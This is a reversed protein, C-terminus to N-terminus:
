DSAPYIKSCFNSNASYLKERNGDTGNQLGIKGYGDTTTRDHDDDPQNTPNFILEHFFGYHLENGCFLNFRLGVLGAWAEVAFVVQAEVTLDLSAAVSLALPVLLFM